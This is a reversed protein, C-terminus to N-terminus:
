YVNKIPATEYYHISSWGHKSSNTCAWVTKGNKLTAKKFKEGCSACSPTWYDGSLLEKLISERVTDGLKNFSNLINDQDFLQINNAIAFERAPITFGSTIYYGGNEVKEAAMQGRLQQLLPRDVKRNKDWKKCQILCLTKSEDNNDFVRIDVGEDAGDNTLCANLGSAKLILHCLLEFRKWEIVEIIEPILKFDKEKLYHDISTYTNEPNPFDITPGVDDEKQLLKSRPKKFATSFLNNESFKNNELQISTLVSSVVASCIFLGAFIMLFNSANRFTVLCIVVVLVIWLITLLSFSSTSKNQRM